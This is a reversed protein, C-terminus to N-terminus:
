GKQETGLVRKEEEGCGNISSYPTQSHPEHGTVHRSIPPLIHLLEYSQVETPSTLLQSLYHEGAMGGNSNLLLYTM